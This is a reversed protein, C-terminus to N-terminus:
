CVVFFDGIVCMYIYMANYILFICKGPRHLSTKRMYRKPTEMLKLSKSGSTRKLTGCLFSPGSKVM